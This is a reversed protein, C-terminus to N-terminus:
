FSQNNISGSVVELIEQTIGAQRSKNYKLTLDDILVHANETANKMSVMRASHESAISNHLSTLIQTEFYEPLIRDMIAKQNPEFIINPIQKIKTPTKNNILQSKMSLPLLKKIEIQQILTNIFKTYVLFILDLENNQFKDLIFKKISTIDKSNPDELYQSFHGINDISTHNIIKLATKFISIGKIHAKPYEQKLSRKLENAQNTLNHIMSGVFGRDTGIVVIGINKIEKIDKVLPSKYDSVSDNLIQAIEALGDAYYISKLAREQAKQMKSASILQLANTIKATNNISTIRRKIERTQM